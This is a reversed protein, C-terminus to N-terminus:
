TYISVIFMALITLVLFINIIRANKLDINDAKKDLNDTVTTTKQSIKNGTVIIYKLDELKYNGTKLLIERLECQFKLGIVTKFAKKEHLKNYLKYVITENTLDSNNKIYEVTNWEDLADAYDAHNSFLFGDVIYEENNM